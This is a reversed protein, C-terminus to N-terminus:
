EKLALAWIKCKYTFMIERGNKLLVHLIGGKEKKKLSLYEHLIGGKEKKKLSLYEHVYLTGELCVLSNRM